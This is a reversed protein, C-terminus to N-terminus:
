RYQLSAEHRLRWPPSTTIEFHLGHFCPRYKKKQNSECFFCATYHSSVITVPVSMCSYYAPRSTDNNYPGLM